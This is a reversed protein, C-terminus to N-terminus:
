SPFADPVPLWATTSRFEHQGVERVLSVWVQAELALIEEVNILLLALKKQICPKATVSIGRLWFWWLTCKEPYAWEKPVCILVTSRPPHIRLGTTKGSILFLLNTVSRRVGQSIHIQFCFLLLFFVFKSHQKRLLPCLSLRRVTEKQSLSMQM